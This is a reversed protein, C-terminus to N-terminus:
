RTAFPWTSKGSRVLCSMLASLLVSLKDLDTTVWCDVGSPRVYRGLVMDSPPPRPEIRASSHALNMVSQCTNQNETESSCRTLSPRGIVVKSSVARDKETVMITVEKHQYAFGVMERGVMIYVLSPRVISYM